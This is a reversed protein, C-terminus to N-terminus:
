MVLRIIFAQFDRDIAKLRAEIVAHYKEDYGETAQPHGGDPALANEEPYRDVM